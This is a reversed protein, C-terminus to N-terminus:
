GALAWQATPPQACTNKQRGRERDAHERGRTHKHRAHPMFEDAVATNLEATSKCPFEEQKQLLAKERALM